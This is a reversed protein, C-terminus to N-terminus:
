KQLGKSDIDCEDSSLSNNTPSSIGNTQINSSNSTITNIEIAKGKPQTFFCLSNSTMIGPSNTKTEENNSYCDDDWNELIEINNNNASEVDGYYTDWNDEICKQKQPSLNKKKETSKGTIEIKSKSKIDIPSTIICNTNTKSSNSTIIISNDCDDYIEPYLASSPNRKNTEPNNTPKELVESIRRHDTKLCVAQNIHIFKEIEPKIDYGLYLNTQHNQATGTIRQYAHHFTNGCDDVKDHYHESYKAPPYDIKGSFPIGINEAKWDCVNAIPFKRLQYWLAIKEIDIDNITLANGSLNLIIIDTTDNSCRVIIKFDEQTTFTFTQYDSCKLTKIQKFISNIQQIYSKLELENSLNAAENERLKTQFHGKAYYKYENDQPNNRLYEIIYPLWLYLSNDLTTDNEETKKTNTKNHKQKYKSKGNNNEPQPMPIPASIIFNTINDYKLNNKKDCMKNIIKATVALQNKLDGITLLLFDLKQKNDNFFIRQTEFPTTLESFLVFYGSMSAMTRNAISKLLKVRFEQLVFQHNPHNKNLLERAIENAFPLLYRVCDLQPNEVNEITEWDDKLIGAMIKITKLIVEFDPADCKFPSTKVNSICESWKAPKNKDIVLDQDANLKDMFRHAAMTLVISWGASYHDHNGTFSIGNNNALRVKVSDGMDKPLPLQGFSDETKYVLNTTVFSSYIKKEDAENALEQIRKEQAGDFLVEELIVAEPYTNRIYLIIAERVVKPLHSAADIRLGTFGYGDVPDLYLDIAQKLYAIVEHTIKENFIEIKNKENKSKTFFAYQIVDNVTEGKWDPHFDFKSSNASLHKWVFDILITFKKEKAYQNLERIKNKPLNYQISTLDNPAYLSYHFTTQIGTDNCRRHCLSDLIKCIPNLWASNFELSIAIDIQEKLISIANEQNPHPPLINVSIFRDLENHHSNM